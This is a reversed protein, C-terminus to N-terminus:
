PPAEQLAAIKNIIDEYWSGKKSRINNLTAQLYKADVAKTNQALQVLRVVMTASTPNMELSVVLINVFELALM